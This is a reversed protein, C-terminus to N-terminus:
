TEIYDKAVIAGDYVKFQTADTFRDIRVWLETQLQMAGAADPIGGEWASTQGIPAYWTDGSDCNYVCSSGHKRIGYNHATWATTIPKFGTVSTANPSSTQIWRNYLPISHDLSSRLDTKDLPAGAVFTGSGSNTYFGGNVRDYLGITGSSNMAPIFDRILSGNQICRCRYLKAHCTYDTVSMIAFLQYQASISTNAITMQQNQVWLSNSGTYDHVITDRKGATGITSGAFLGYKGDTQCGWYESGNGGYGMLQRKTTNTFQIDFEWKAAGTVGTNIWQTGTAEIYSLPTYSTNFGNSKQPYTLLFEYEGNYKFKDVAGMRSYKKGELNKVVQSTTFYSQNSTLDLNHIRAWVSGDGLTKIKMEYTPINKHNFGGSSIVGNKGIENKSTKESFEYTSVVGTKFVSAANKYLEQIDDTSLATGYIRFDSMKGNFYSGGPTTASTAAEAGIFIGNSSNYYIPTKTSLTTGSGRLVGDIYIKNTYGDFTGTFMHWGASLSSCAINSVATLYSNSTTGVGTAFCMGNSSNEGNPELNWGGGETCSCMRRNTYDGWNSMYGWVNVTIADRVMPNRGCSIYKSGPFTYCTDYRPSDYTIDFIASKTANNRNGSCDLETLGFNFAWPDDVNYESEKVLKMNWLRLTYNASDAAYLNTRVQYTGVPLTMTGTCRGDTLKGQSGWCYHTGASSDNLWLSFYRSSGATGSTNHGSPNGDCELIWRYTGAETITATLDGHYVYSDNMHSVDSANRVLPKTLTYKESGKLYNNAGPGNLKYHAVLGKAIEKIEKPSLVEDYARFDNICGTLKYSSYVSSDVTANAFSWAGIMFYDEINYQGSYSHTGDLKGNLYFKITSGDFTFATHYWTNAQLLTNNCYANYTRSSGNGTNLSLYGTSTSVYKLTLGMGSNTQYRHQGGMAGGLSSDAGLSTFKTWCCMTIKTGLNIKKDSVLGGATYANNYYCTSSTKGEGSLSTSSGLSTFKLNSIGQNIYDRNLPLWIQLAM